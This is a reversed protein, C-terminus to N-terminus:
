KYLFITEQKEEENEKLFIDMHQFSLENGSLFNSNDFYEIFHTSILTKPCDELGQLYKITAGLISVGLHM